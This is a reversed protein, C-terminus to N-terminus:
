REFGIKDALLERILISRKTNNQQCYKSVLTMESDTLYYVGKFRKVEDKPISQFGKKGKVIKAM